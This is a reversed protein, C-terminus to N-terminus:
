EVRLAAVVELRGARRAPILSAAAALLLVTTGLPLLLGWPYLFDITFGLAARQGDILGATLVAALPVALVFAVLALTAAEVLVMGRVQRRLTGVSRLVGLERTRTIVSVVLTNALGLMGIVAAVGLIAYALGFFGALQARSQSRISETTEVLPSYRGELRRVVDLRVAEPDTGDALGLLYGNPRGAGLSAGDAVGVVAEFGQGLYAYTGALVLERLGETTRLSVGDGREVGIADATSAPLLLAGGAALARRATDDDGDLWAFSAVDFYTGPDIVAFFRRLGVDGELLDTVGFRIATTARVGPLAALEEGVAPDFAGPASVQVGGGAQREVVRDLTEGMAQNSAGVSLVLALVVMVLGLTYASRSREKVLHLVAIPGVGRALRRTVVGLLRALPGLLAPVLLVAGLLVTLTAVLNVLPSGGAPGVGGFTVVGAVAVLGLGLWPRAPRDDDGTAGRMAAVPELAAARRGPVWAAAISVLVGLVVSVLAQPIPLGIGPLDLGLLSEVIAVIGVAILAGLVLGVLSSGLGLVAAEAVVVRRVQHPLAGLARLTAYTRTREAVALSFTLFILFAGVFLAIASVLTLAGNVGTVFARFGSAVEDADIASVGSGLEAQYGAIWLARDTGDTLAVAVSSFGEPRGGLVRAADISTYAVAGGNALGAGSAALLGTVRVPRSGAPTAIPVEDGVALDLRDAFSRAVVVEAAAPAFLVGEDLEFDQLAGAADLDVGEVFLIASDEGAVDRREVSSRFGISGVAREVDPLAALRDPLDAPLTADFSGAPSVLVDARGVAGRVLRDLASSTAASEALVGFLVAVGLATGLATLAYRGKRRRLSRWSLTSLSRM